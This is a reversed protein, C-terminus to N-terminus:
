LKKPFFFLFFFFCCFFLLLAFVGWGPGALLGGRVCLLFFFLFLPGAGPNNKTEGKRFHAERAPLSIGSLGCEAWVCVCVIFPLVFACVLLFFFFFFVFCGDGCYSARGREM